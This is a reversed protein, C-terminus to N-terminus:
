PGPGRISRGSYIQQCIRASHRVDYASGEFARRIRDIGPRRGFGRTLIRQAWQTPDASDVREVLEPVVAAEAPVAASVFCLRGAAQAEILALGLGEATSPFLFCDLSALIEPVDRRVGLFRVRQTLGLRAAMREAEPRCPGEGALILRADVGMNLLSHLVPLLFTQNKEASFRGCHGLVLDGPGTPPAGARAFYPALDAAPPVIHIAPDQQWLPGFLSEAAGSSVALGHTKHRAIAGGCWSTYFRRVLGRAPGSTSHSHAIRVPVGAHTAQSLVFGSFHHVHSHVAQFPGGQHLVRALSRAALWPRATADWHFIRAGRSRFEEELMGPQRDELLFDFAWQDPDRFSDLAHLWNEVGAPDLKRLVHLVRRPM